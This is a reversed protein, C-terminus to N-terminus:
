MTEGLTIIFPIMMMSRSARPSFGSPSLAFLWHHCILALACTSGGAALRYVTLATCHQRWTYKELHFLLM